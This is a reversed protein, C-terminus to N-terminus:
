NLYYRSISTKQDSKQIKYGYNLTFTVFVNRNLGLQPVRPPEREKKVKEIKAEKKPKKKEKKIEPPPPTPAAPKKIQKGSNVEKKLYPNLSKPKQTPPAQAVQTPKKKEKKVQSKAQAMKARQKAAKKRAKIRFLM